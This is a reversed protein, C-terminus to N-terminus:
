TLEVHATEQLSLGMAYLPTEQGEVASSNNIHGTCLWFISQFYCFSRLVKAISFYQKMFLICQILHSSSTYAAMTVLDVFAGQPIAAKSSIGM